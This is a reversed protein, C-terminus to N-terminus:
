HNPAQAMLEHPHHEIQKKEHALKRKELAEKQRDLYHAVEEEEVIRELLPYILIAASSVCLCLGLYLLAVGLGPEGLPLNAAYLLVVGCTALFGKM